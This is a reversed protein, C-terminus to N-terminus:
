DRVDPGSFFRPDGDLPRLASAVLEVSTAQRIAELRVAVRAAGRTEVLVGRMGEFPGDTVEVPDGPKLYEAPEPEQGTANAGEVLRRVSDLEEERVPTPYGNVRVVFIVRPTRLVEGVADLTFRAFLYGPFLPFAVTKVRDAWQREREVLPLYREIGREGLLRDAVKESRTRTRCAFWHPREYLEQPTGEDRSRAGFSEM